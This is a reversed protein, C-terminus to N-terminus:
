TTDRSAPVGHSERSELDGLEREFVTQAEENERAGPGRDDSAVEVVGGTGDVVGRAFGAERVKNLM